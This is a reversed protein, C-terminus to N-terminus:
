GSDTSLEGVPKEKPPRDSDPESLIKGLYLSGFYALVCLGITAMMGSVFGIWFSDM